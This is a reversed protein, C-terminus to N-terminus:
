LGRNLRYNGRNSINGFASDQTASTGSSFSGSISGDSYGALFQGILEQIEIPFRGFIDLTPNFFEVEVGGGPSVRKVNSGSTGQTFLSPNVLLAGAIEICATVIQQPAASEDVAEGTAYRVGSRPWQLVVDILPTGVPTGQWAVRDILRTANILSKNQKLDTAATWADAVKGLMVNWYLDGQANSAYVAYDHADITIITM